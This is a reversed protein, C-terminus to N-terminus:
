KSDLMDAVHELWAKGSPWAHPYYYSCGIEEFLFAQIEEEGNITRLVFQLEDKVRLVTEPSAEAIFLRIVDDETDHDCNWDQHFYGALFQFLDPFKESM